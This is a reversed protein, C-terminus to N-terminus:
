LTKIFDTMEPLCRDIDELLKMQARTRRLNHEPEDIRFYTDGNIYDTLFRVAQMYTLMMVGFPLLEKELPTLFSASAVYGKAFARFIDMNVAVKSLDAEDEAGTNGATRLFDGFDSLVFGPMTTDLDIVCLPTGDTDFLINNVKTDCHTIRKPLKGQEALHFPLTMEEERALLRESLDSVSKARGAPDDQIAERLQSIRFATNHFNPITEKLNPALPHSLLAHFEGFAQGTLEAMHPTLTEHTFSRPINVTMRWYQGDKVTYLAGDSTPVLTLTRRDIDGTDKEKLCHRIHDTIKLINDQLLDIDKFVNHNIKQLVYDPADPPLTTVLFTDNILGNGLRTIKDPSGKIQFLRAIDFLNQKM